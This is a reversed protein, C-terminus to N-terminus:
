NSSNYLYYNIGQDLKGFDDVRKVGYRHDLRTTVHNSAIQDLYQTRNDHVADDHHSPYLPLGSLLNESACSCICRKIINSHCLPNYRIHM